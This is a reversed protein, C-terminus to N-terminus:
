IYKHEQLQCLSIVTVCSFEQIVRMLVSVQWLLAYERKSLESRQRNTLSNPKSSYRVQYEVREHSLLANLSLISSSFITQDCHNIVSRLAPLSPM